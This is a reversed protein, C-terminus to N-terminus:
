DGPPQTAPESTRGEVDPTIDLIPNSSWSLQLPGGGAGTLAVSDGYQRPILKSLLWKRTDVQLRSRAVAAMNGKGDANRDETANDALEVLEEAWLAARRLVAAQYDDWYTKALMPWITGISNGAERCAKALSTGTAIRDLIVLIVAHIQAPTRYRQTRTAPSQPSQPAEATM